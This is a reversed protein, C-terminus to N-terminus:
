NGCYGECEDQWGSFLHKQGSKDDNSRFDVQDIPVCSKHLFRSADLGTGTRCINDVEVARKWGTPDNNKLDAWEHDDKFPCFVCASRPVEHPVRDKLYAVCDSRTMELDFLPFEVSWTKPKGLFRQKVRIVRKPEDYSLGMIQKVHCDKPIPRGKPTDFLVQRIYNEIPKIKFDGTCQRRIMGKKNTQPNLTFAPISIYHGGDTRANGRADTGNELADGLKGATVTIIEPGNLSKLWEIHEYVSEPEEQVDAFIACDIPDLEGDLALLYIATSQIGAGLNLVTKHKGDM